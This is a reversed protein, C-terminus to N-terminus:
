LTQPSSCLFSGAPCKCHEAFALCFAARHKLSISPFYDPSNRAAVSTKNRCNSQSLRLPLSKKPRRRELWRLFVVNEKAISLRRVPTSEALRAEAQKCRGWWL